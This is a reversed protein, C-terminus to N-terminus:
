FADFILHSQVTDRGYQVCVHIYIYMCVYMIHM